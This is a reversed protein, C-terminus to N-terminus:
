KTGKKKRTPIDSYWPINGNYGVRSLGSAEYLTEFIQEM